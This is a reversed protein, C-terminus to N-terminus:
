KKNEAASEIGAKSIIEFMKQINQIDIESGEFTVEGTKPALSIKLDSGLGAKEAEQRIQQIKAITVPSGAKWFVGTYCSLFYDPKGDRIQFEFACNYEIVDNISNMQEDDFGLLSVLRFLVNRIPHGFPLLHSSNRIKASLLNACKCIEDKSYFRPNISRLEDLLVNLARPINSELTDVGRQPDEGLRAVMAPDAFKIESITKFLYEVMATVREDLGDIPPQIQSLLNTEKVHYIPETEKVVHVFYQTMFNRLEDEQLLNWKKSGESLYRHSLFQYVMKLRVPDDGAFDTLGRVMIVISKVAQPAALDLHKNFLIERFSEVSPSSPTWYLRSEDFFRYQSMPTGENLENLFLDVLDEVDLMMFLQRIIAKNEAKDIRAAVRIPRRTSLMVTQLMEQRQDGTALNTIGRLAPNLKTLDRETKVINLWESFYRGNFILQDESQSKMNQQVNFMDSVCRSKLAAIEQYSTRLAPRQSDPLTESVLLEEILALRQKSLSIVAEYAELLQEGERSNTLLEQLESQKRLGSLQKLKNEDKKVIVEVEPLSFRDRLSDYRKALRESDSMEYSTEDIESRREVKVIETEGRKLTLRDKDILVSNQEGVPKIEYDGAKIEISQDTALDVIKVFDDEGSIQIKVDDVMTEIKIEGQNTVIRVVQQRFAWGSAAMVGFILTAIAWKWFNSRTKNTKKFAMSKSRQYVEFEWENSTTELAKILSTANPPRRLPSKELLCLALDSTESDIAPDLERPEIPQDQQISRLTALANESRFPLRGTLSQYMVCGLSFLDSRADLRDGRSQEPSMFCPTGAIMGTCTLQPDEDNVRVLGFDLIKAPEAGDPIWINAPKIDRHILSQEHAAALGSAVQGILEKTEEVSLSEECDLKQELTQGPLWQMAIFSLPGDSGVEYITVVNRHNLAATAKAEAMFRQRAPEGLSPRLIKIVVNRDLVTDLGLYVIGTSGAGILELLRYQDIAGLDGEVLPDRLLRQVEAARDLSPNESVMTLGERKWSKAKGIMQDIWKRDGIEQDDTHQVAKKTLDVFTDDIKLNEVTEICSGCQSLHDQFVEIQPVALEGRIFKKLENPEPCLSNSNQSM